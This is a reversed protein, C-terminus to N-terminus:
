RQIFTSTFIFIWV